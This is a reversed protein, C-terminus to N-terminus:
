TLSSECHKLYNSLRLVELYREVLELKLESDSQRALFRPLYIKFNESKRTKKLRIRPRNAGNAIVGLKKPILYNRGYGSKVSVVDHKDGLTGLDKLLIIEM